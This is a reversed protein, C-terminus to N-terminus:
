LNRQIKRYDDGIKSVLSWLSQDCEILEDSVKLSFVGIDSKKSSFSDEIVEKKIKAIEGLLWISDVKKLDDSVLLRNLTSDILSLLESKKQLYFQNKM